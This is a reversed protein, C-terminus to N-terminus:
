RKASRLRSRAWAVDEKVTQITQEPVPPTAQKIKRKGALAALGGILGLVVTVVLAALAPTMVLSLALIAAATAAGVAALGAVAAAGFLGAGIAFRQGKEALEAKALQVEQRVLTGVEGGLEKLLEGTSPPNPQPSRPATDTAM